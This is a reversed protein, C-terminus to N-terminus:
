KKSDFCQISCLITSEICNLPRICLCKDKDQLDTLTFIKSLNDLLCPLGFLNLLCNM